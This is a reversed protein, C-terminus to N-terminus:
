IGCFVRLVNETTTLKVEEVSVGKIEAIREAVAPIILSTNRAKQWKKRSIDESKNEPKVYPGDTELMLYKLPTAKVSEALEASIEQKMLLTGGIGLCLGLEETLIKAVSPGSSFCHAVGGHLKNKYRRLIRIADKDAERIHLILPLGKKDALDLEWRFWRKQRLRHQEKRDYHYDLGLEGIAVVRGNGALEEIRHRERWPTDPTRTPHLGVAPYIFDPYKGSLDLLTQNSDVDIAPDIVFGIVGKLEGILQERTGCEKVLFGEGDYDAYPFVQDYLHHSIHIHSDVYLSSRQM